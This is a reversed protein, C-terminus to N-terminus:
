GLRDPQVPVYRSMASIDSWCGSRGAGNQGGSGRPGIGAAPRLTSAWRDGSSTGSPSRTARTAPSPRSRSSRGCDSPVTRRPRSCISQLRLLGKCPHSRSRTSLALTASSSACRQAPSRACRRSLRLQHCLFPLPAFTLPTRSQIPHSPSQGDRITGGEYDSRLGRLKEGKLSWIRVVSEESGAALLSMDESFRTSTVGEGNDHFTYACVSPLVVRGEVEDGEWAPSPLLESASLPQPGLRIRKRSDLIKNVERKVDFTRFNHPLPILDGDVPMLLSPDSVPVNLGLPEAPPPVSPAVVAPAASPGGAATPTEAAPGTSSGAPGSTSAPDVDMATAGDSTVAPPAGGTTSSPAAGEAAPPVAAPPSAPKPPPPPANAADEIKIVKRVEDALKESLLPIGLKLAGQAENFASPSPKSQPGSPLGPMHSALLGTETLLALSSIPKTSEAVPSPVRM